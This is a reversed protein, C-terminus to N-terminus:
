ISGKGSHTAGNDSPHDWVHVGGMDHGVFVHGGGGGM